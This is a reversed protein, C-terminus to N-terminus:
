ITMKAIFFTRLKTKKRSNRQQFCSNYYDMLDEKNLDHNCDVDISTITDTNVQVSSVSVKPVDFVSLFYVTLFFFNNDIRVFTSGQRNQVVM